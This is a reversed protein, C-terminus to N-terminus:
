ERGNTTSIGQTQNRKMTDLIQQLGGIAIPNVSLANSRNYAAVADKNRGELQLRAGYFAYVQGLNPDWKFAQTFYVDAKQFDSLEAQTLGAKVLSREDMPFYKLGQDFAEAAAKLFEWRVAGGFQNALLRRSEGLYYFPDPCENGYEAARKAHDITLAYSGELFTKRSAEAEFEGSWRPLILGILIASLVVPITSWIWTLCKSRNGQWSIGPNALVGFLFSAFLTNGPIQLNFDFISHVALAAVGAIAGIVLALSSSLAKESQRLRRLMWSIYKWAVLFHALLFCLVLVGAVLGYEALLQVYDNHAYIPDTQISADRFERGYILYTGAGTGIIPDLAFARIGARWLHPRLDQEAISGFRDKLLDSHTVFGAGLLLVACSCSAGLLVLSLRFREVRVLHYVGYIGIVILGAGLSLYGGRSGTILVGAFGACAFYFFIIRLWVSVRGFFGIALLVLGLTELFGALHDPCTYFGSARSGYDPRLYDFLLWRNGSVYQTLGLWLHGAELFLFGGIMLLRARVSTLFVASLTYTALAAVILLANTTALFALPSFFGRVLLYGFFLATWFLLGWGPVYRRAGVVLISLLGACGVLLYGPFALAPRTGGLCVQTWAIGGLM